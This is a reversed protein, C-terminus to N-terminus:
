ARPLAAEGLASEYGDIMQASDLVLSLAAM